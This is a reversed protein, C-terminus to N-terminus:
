PHVLRFGWSQHMSNPNFYGRYASRSPPSSDSWRGGRIARLSGSTAGTPNIQAIVPYTGYWDWCWEWVNAYMDYLGWANPLKLGVQHTIGGGHVGWWAYNVLLSEDDGFHWLATSDARCAYEWQAETPLRYGSANWNPEGVTANIINNGSRTIGTLPYVPTLGKLVSLKNCFEVADFWTITEVPRMGQIEGPAPERGSGDHFYSPNNGMVAVWQDQTVQYKSMRFASLSVSRQPQEDSFGIGDYSGMMFTGAPITIMEIFYVEINVFLGLLVFQNEVTM